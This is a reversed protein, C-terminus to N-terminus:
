SLILYNSIQNLDFVKFMKRNIFDNVNFKYFNVLLVIIEENSWGLTEYIIYDSLWYSIRFILFDSKKEIFSFFSLFLKELNKNLLELPVSKIFIYNKEYYIDINLFSLLKKKIFKYKVEKFSLIIPNVLKKKNKKILIKKYMLFKNFIYYIYFLDFVFIYNKKNTFVFRKDSVNLITGFNYLFYHLYSDHFLSFKKNLKKQTNNEKKIKFLYKKKKFFSIFLIHIINHLETYKFFEIKRKDANINVNLESVNITFFLIYSFSRKKTFFELFSRDVSSFLINNNSIIRRNLFIIKVDKSVDFFIFGYCSVNKLCIDIYHSKNYFEKGYINVIRNILTLKENGIFFYKKYLSRNNYIYYNVKNNSLIFLNLVKKILLWENYYTSNLLNNNFYNFFVDKVEVSTGKNCNIPKIKFLSTNKKSNLIMWGYNKHIIKSSLSFNSISSISSLALGRFGFTNLYKLDEFLFIKSTAFKKVSLFLEEKPIGDGNDTVKISTFGSNVIEIKILTSNADLSNELLEKLILYPRNIFEGVSIKNITDEPLNKIKKIM